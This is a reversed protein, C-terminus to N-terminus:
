KADPQESLYKQDRVKECNCLDRELSAKDRRLEVNEAELSAIRSRLQELEASSARMGRAFMDPLAAVIWNMDGYFNADEPECADSELYLTEDGLRVHIYNAYEKGSGNDPVGEKAEDNLQGFDLIEVTLEAM